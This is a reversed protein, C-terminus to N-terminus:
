KLEYLINDVILSHLTRPDVQRLRTDYEKTRDHELAMDIFNVRGLDNLEGFHRGVMVRKEGEMARKVAAKFAKQVDKPASNTYTDMLEKVVDEEKVQKFFTVTMVHGGKRLFIEAMETRTVKQKETWQDASSICVELYDKSVNVTEGTDTVLHAMNKNNDISLVKYYQAEGLISGPKLLKFNTLQPM